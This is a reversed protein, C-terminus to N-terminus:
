PYSKRAGHFQALYSFSRIHWKSLTWTFHLEIINMEIILIYPSSKALIGLKSLIEGQFSTVESMEKGEEFWTFLCCVAESNCSQKQRFAVVVM